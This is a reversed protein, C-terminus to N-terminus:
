EWTRMSAETRFHFESLTIMKVSTSRPISDGPGQDRFVRRKKYEGVSCPKFYVAVLGHSTPIGWALQGVPLQCPAVACSKLSIHSSERGQPPM